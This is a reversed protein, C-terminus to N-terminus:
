GNAGTRKSDLHRIFGFILKKCRETKEVLRNFDVEKLYGQDMAVIIQTEVEFISGQSMHLFRILDNDSGRGCGEAINSLASVAARRLQSVLGFMEYEPFYRSSEYVDKVLERTARWLDLDKYNAKGRM